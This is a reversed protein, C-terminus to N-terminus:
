RRWKWINELAYVKGAKLRVTGNESFIRARNFPETPFFIDTLATAGGDAFTEASAVDVLIQLRIIKDTSLRPATHSKVAFKPSFAHDGAQTRDSFFQKGAADYGIRYREGKKNYLEIGFRPNASAGPEFELNFELPNESFAPLLNLELNGSVEREPLTMKGNRLKELEHVPMSFLRYGEETKKLQLTRPVTMASRWAATPVVTAYDWNSMWGLFLRRGDKKPVDSWTVGAYNDRGYDLWVARGKQTSQSFDPDPTFNKGDFNGVFYQTGSGGNPAGPNISVLLVWKQEGTGEVQIPFLDPCEWVGGHAGRDKGFDSLHQWNKLNKSGWFNVHDGVAFVMVWQGSDDDWLVKPDRFDRVNGPNPIVPNGAYKTWTRGNDLSWAIGQSQFDSRGAKEGAMNHYTFIAVLPVRGNKGFGSTNNRDVVASGSFIYGLSDPYLAIPLHMWHVLDKSVAHGWHMPGWVTSDPYYQYFLHYEGEHYVMGNPDNMWKSPPSFHLKPRHQEWPTETEDIIEDEYGVVQTYGVAPLVGVIVLAILLIWTNKM